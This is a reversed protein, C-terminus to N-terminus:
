ASQKGANLLHKLDKYIDAPKAAPSYSLILFKDPNAIYVQASSPLKSASLNQYHMDQEQLLQAVEPSLKVGPPLILVEEVEYLHRGLALRIRGLKDLQSLCAQECVGPNWFVLQWKSKPNALEVSVAPVLLNGKNTAQARLWQPHTFFLYAAVGPAIFLLALLYLVLNKSKVTNTM